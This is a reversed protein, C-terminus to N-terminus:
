QYHGLHEMAYRMWRLRTYHRARQHDRELTDHCHMGEWLISMVQAELCRLWRGEEPYGENLKGMQRDSEVRDIVEQFLNIEASVKVADLAKSFVDGQYFHTSSEAADAVGLWPNCTQVGLECWEKIKLNAEVADFMEPKNPRIKITM